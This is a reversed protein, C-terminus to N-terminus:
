SLMHQKQWQGPTSGYLQRFAKCFLSASSYGVKLSTESVPTGCELYFEARRCRMTHLLHSFSEHCEEAIKRSLYGYSVSCYRAADALTITETMHDRMWQLFIRILYSHDKMRSEEVIKCYIVPIKRGLQNLERISTTKEIQAALDACVSRVHASSAGGEEAARCSLTNSVLILNKVNRLHGQNTDYHGDDAFHGGDLTDQLVKMDGSRVASRMLQEYRANSMILTRDNNEASEIGRIIDKADMQVSSRQPHNQRFLSRLAPLDKMSYHPLGSELIMGVDEDVYFPGLILFADDIDATLGYFYYAGSREPLESEQWCGAQHYEQLKKGLFDERACSRRLAMSANKVSSTYEALRRGDPLIITMDLHSLTYLQRIYDLFEDM